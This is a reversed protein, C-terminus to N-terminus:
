GVPFHRGGLVTAQVGIDRLGDAGVVFPDEDLVAFDAWKGASISGVENDMRLQYAAGM